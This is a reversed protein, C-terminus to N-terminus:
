EDRRKHNRERTPKRRHSKRTIPEDPGFLWLRVRDAIAKLREDSIRERYRASMKVAFPAAGGGDDPVHGMVLDIAPFDRGEDAVTQFTHRLSYFGIGKRHVGCAAALKRFEMGVSDIPKGADSVSVYPRRRKSIFVRDKLDDPLPGYREITVNRRELASRIAEITQQWLVARRPAETKKRAFDVIGADLDLHPLRLEGCDTNGFGANIGLLTMARLNLLQDHAGAKAANLITVIETATLDKPGNERLARRRLRASPLKFEGGYDPPHTLLKATDHGWRFITRQRIMINAATTANRTKGAAKGDGKFADARLKAFDTPRLLDAERSRNLCELMRKGDRQYDDFMRQTIEGSELKTKRSSIFRNVLEDLTCGGEEPPAQGAFLYDKEKLYRELAAQPDSWPGFYIERGRVRKAWVGGAHAYLPFEPYPKSPKRQRKKRKVVTSVVTSSNKATKM